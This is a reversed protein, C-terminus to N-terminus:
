AILHKRPIGKVYEFATKLANGSEESYEDEPATEEEHRDNETVDLHQKVDYDFDM